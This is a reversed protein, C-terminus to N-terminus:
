RSRSVTRLTSDALRRILTDPSVRLSVLADYAITDHRAEYALSRAAAMRVTREPDGLARVLLPMADHGAGTSSLMRAAAARVAASTDSMAPYYTGALSRTETDINPLVLLAAARQPGSHSALERIRDLAARAGVSREGLSLVALTRVSDDSDRTAAALAQIAGDDDDRFHGLGIAAARRITVNSDSLGKLLPKRSDEPLRRAAAIASDRISAVSDGTALLLPRLHSWQRPGIASLAAVASARERATGGTLARTWEDASRGEHSGDRSCASLGYLVSAAFIRRACRNM